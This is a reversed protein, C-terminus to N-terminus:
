MRGESGPSHLPSEGGPESVRSLLVKLEEPAFEYRQGCFHCTMEVPKDDAILEALDRAGLSILAREVRDRDCRCHYRIDQRALIQYDIGTLALRLIGEPTMGQDIAESISPILGVNAELGRVVDEAAGPLAQLFFGGAARVHLDRDVLVGLAVASPTQESVVFYNSIDMAIEGSVLPASSTYPERMHLDRTVHVFGNQGVLGGVDLKGDSRTPLDAHPEHVYGRVNGAHDAETIIGGLPGDGIFRLTISEGDKLTAAFLGAATLARGLAATATASTGHRRRAQEVLDTTTAVLARVSGDASTARLLYDSAM